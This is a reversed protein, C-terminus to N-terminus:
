RGRGGSGCPRSRHARQPHGGAGPGARASRVPLAAARPPAREAPAREVQWSSPRRRHPLDGPAAAAQASRAWTPPRSVDALADVPRQPRLREAVGVDPDRVRLPTSCDKLERYVQALPRRRRSAQGRSTRPATRRSRHDGRTPLRARPMASPSSSRPEPTPHATPVSAVTRHGAPVHGVVVGPLPRSQRGSARGVGADRRRPPPGQHGACSRGM